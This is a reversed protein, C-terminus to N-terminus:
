IGRKKVGSVRFVVGVVLEATIMSLEYSMVYQLVVDDVGGIFFRSVFM